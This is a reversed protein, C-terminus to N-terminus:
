DKPNMVRLFEFHPEVAASPGGVRGDPIRVGVEVGIAVRVRARDAAGFWAVVVVAPQGGAINVRPSVQRDYVTTFVPM